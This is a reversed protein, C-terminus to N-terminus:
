RKEVTMMTAGALEGVIEDFRRRLLRVGGVIVDAEALDEANLTVEIAVVPMGAAKAARIGQPANEVVLCASPPLGLNDAARLYPDPAPKGREVDDATVVVDFLELQAPTLIAELDLRGSGTVLATALGRGRADRVLAMSEPYVKARTMHRYLDQKRSVVRDLVHDEITLGHERALVRAMEPTRIGENLFVNRPDIDIGFPQFVARWARVHYDMSDVLVGDFDFLAAQIM